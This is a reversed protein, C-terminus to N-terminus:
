RPPAGRLVAQHLVLGHSQTRGIHRGSLGRRGMHPSRRRPRRPCVARRRRQAQRDPRRSRYRAASELLGEYITGFERVSLSRFDVPGKGDPGDDLLLSEVAPVFEDDRLRLDALAAGPPSVSPDEAFLGGNYAPVGWRPRGRSVASWLDKVRDWLNSTSSSQVSPTGATHQQAMDIALRKLSQAEYLSNSRYPLLDKDEAYAVFLLRFLIVMVQEHAAQLEEPRRSPPWGHPLLPPWRPYRRSTCGTECGCRSIRQLARRSASSKKSPGTLTSLKPPSCCTCTGPSYRRCCRWTRRWTLRPADKAASAQTLDRRM